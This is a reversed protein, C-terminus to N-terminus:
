FYLARFSCSINSGASVHAFYQNYFVQFFALVFDTVVAKQCLPRFSFVLQALFM